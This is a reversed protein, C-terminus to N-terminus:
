RVILVPARAHQAVFLATSGLPMLSESIRELGAGRAGIVVYSAGASAELIVSRPDGVVVKKEWQAHMPQLDSMFQFLDDNQAPVVARSDHPPEAPRPEKVTLILLKDEQTHCLRAAAQLVARSAPSGDIAALVLRAHPKRTKHAPFSAVQVRLGSTLFKLFALAM